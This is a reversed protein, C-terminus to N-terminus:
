KLTNNKSKFYVYPAVNEAVKFDQPFNDSSILDGQLWNGPIKNAV